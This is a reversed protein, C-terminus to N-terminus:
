YAPNEPTDARHARWVISLALLLLEELAAHCILEIFDLHADVHHRRLVSFAVHDKHLPGVLLICLVLLKALLYVESVM